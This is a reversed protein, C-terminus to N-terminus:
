LRPCHNYILPSETVSSLWTNVYANSVMATDLLNDQLCPCPRQHKDRIRNCQGLGHIHSHKTGERAEQRSKKNIANKDQTADHKATENFNM